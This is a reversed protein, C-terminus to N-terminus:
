RALQSVVWALYSPSGEGAEVALSIVEPLEYPHMACLAETLAGVRAATTKILLTSETDRQIVGEWEYVSSVAPLINVCAALRQSVLAEAIRPADAPPANCLVLRVADPARPEPPADSM